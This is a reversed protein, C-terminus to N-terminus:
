LPPDGKDLNPDFRKWAQEAAHRIAEREARDIPWGARTEWQATEPTAAGYVTGIQIPFGTSGIRWVDLRDLSDGDLRYIKTVVGMAVEVTVSPPENM